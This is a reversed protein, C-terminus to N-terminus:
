YLKSTIFTTGLDSLDPLSTAFDGPESRYEPEGCVSCEARGVVRMWVSQPAAQGVVGDFVSSFFDWDAQNSVMCMSWGRQLIATASRRVPTDPNALLGLAMRAAVTSVALIDVGLGTEGVLRGTGYDELEPNALQMDDSNTACSWCPTFNPIAVVVEGAEARRYLACSVFPRDAAFAFHCLRGQAVADDTLAL